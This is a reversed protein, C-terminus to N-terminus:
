LQSVDGCNDGPHGQGLPLSIKAMVVTQPGGSHGLLHDSACCITPVLIECPARCRSFLSLLCGGREGAEAKEQM